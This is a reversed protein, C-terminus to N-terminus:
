VNVGQLSFIHVAREKANWFVQCGLGESIFRLPVFVRGHKSTAPADLRVKEGNVMATKENLRLTIKRNNLQGTITKTREDWLLTAGLAEFIGRLPVLTYGDEVYPPQPSDFLVEEGNVFVSVVNEEWDIEIISSAVAVQHGFSFMAFMMGFALMFCFVKKM